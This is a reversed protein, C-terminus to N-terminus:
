TSHKGTLFTMTLVAAPVAAAGQAAMVLALDLDRGEVVPLLHPLGSTGRAEEAQFDVRTRPPM